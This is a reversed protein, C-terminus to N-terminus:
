EAGGGLRRQVKDERMKRITNRLVIITERRGKWDSGEELVKALPVDDGVERVLARVLRKNEGELVFV